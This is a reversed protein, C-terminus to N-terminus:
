TYVVVYIFLNFKCVSIYYHIIFKCLCILDWGLLGLLGDSGRGERGREPLHAGGTPTM